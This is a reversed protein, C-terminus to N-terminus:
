SENVNPYVFGWWKQRFIVNAVDQLMIKNDRILENKVEKQIKKVLPQMNITAKREKSVANQDNLAKYTPLFKEFQDYYQDFFEEVHKKFVKLAFERFKPTM